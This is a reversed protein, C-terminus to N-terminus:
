AAPHCPEPRRQPPLALNPSTPPIPQRVAWDAPRGLALRLRRRAAEPLFLSVLGQWALASGPCLALARLHGPLAALRSRNRRALALGFYARAFTNRVVAPDVQARGGRDDLFRRMIRLVSRLREEVRRSLNAHGVRYKVLPEDVYDFRFRQAVRLWLDYDVALVLREDFLGVADFVTRRVMASSFCVFNTPFIQQLVSGRYLPPQEYLLERGHEDILLRRTCVVGLEPDTRFLAVQREVKAPLWLDDADLFAVLPARALQVGANKAAAQGLHGTRHYRVRADRLYPQIVQPTDDTSGDDVVVVELDPFTQGLASDLAGALFRGYNYTAIVVSVAPSM